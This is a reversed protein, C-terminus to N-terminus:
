GRVRSLRWTVFAAFALTFLLLIFMYLVASHSFITAYQSSPSVALDLHALHGLAAFSWRSPMLAAPISISSLPVITGAFLLQLVLPIAIFTTAQEQSSVIASISLGIGVGAWSTLVLVVFAGPYAGGHMHHFIFALAGLAIAQGAAIAGLVIFKSAAYARVDVGIARERRFIVREKVLERFSAIVGLLIVVFVLVFVFTPGRTGANVFNSMVDSPFALLLLAIVPVSLVLARLNSKDRRMLLAYRRTLVETQRRLRERDLRPRPPLAPRAAPERAPAPGHRLAPVEGGAREGWEEGSHRQLAGYIDKYSSVGFFELADEPRGYFCLYGGRAMVAVKDCEGIDDPKHTVMVVSCSNEALSRLLKVLEEAYLPDLPSTPEDLFVVSPQALMEMAVCARKRQGGSLKGGTSIEDSGIMRERLPKEDEKPREDLGLAGVARDVAEEIEEPGQDPLRLRAGFRLAEEVTLWRHITDDQPVYGVDSRRLAVPEGNILVEGGSLQSEGALAKLLTTKGAGNEGIIAVLEGPRIKVYTPALIQHGGPSVSVGIAEVSVSGRESRGRIETGTFTLKFPGIGIEAGPGLRAETVPTGDLRTGNRSQLDRLLPGSPGPEIVAHFRSVNPDSLVLENGPDRGIRLPDGTYRAAKPAPPAAPGTGFSTQFRTAGDREGTTDDDSTHDRDETEDAPPREGSFVVLVENGVTVRDGSTLRRRGEIREGAVFTGNKSGLDEIWCEDGDLFIRAHRRSATSDEPLPIDPKEAVAPSSRGILLGAATVPYLESGRQVKYVVAADDGKTATRDATAM